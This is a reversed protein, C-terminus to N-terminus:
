PVSASRAAAEESAAAAKTRSGLIELMKNHCAWEDILIKIYIYGYNRQEEIVAKVIEEDVKQGMLEEYYRKASEELTDKALAYPDDVGEFSLGQLQSLDLLYEPQKLPQFNEFFEKIRREFVANAVLTQEDLIKRAQDESMGSEAIKMTLISLAKNYMEWLREHAIGFDGVEGTSLKEM